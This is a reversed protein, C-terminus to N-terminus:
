TDYQGMQIALGASDSYSAIDVPATPIIQQRKGPFKYPVVAGHVESHAELLLRKMEGAHNRSKATLLMVLDVLRDDSLEFAALSVIDSDSM